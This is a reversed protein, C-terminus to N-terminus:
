HSPQVVLKRTILHCAHLPVNLFTSLALPFNRRVSFRAPRQLTVAVRHHFRPQPTPRRLPHRHQRSGPRNCERDYRQQNKLVPPDFRQNRSRHHFRNRSSPRLRRSNNLCRANRALANRPPMGRRLRSTFNHVPRRCLRSDLNRYWRFRHERRSSNGFADSERRIQTDSHITRCLLHPQPRPQNSKLLSSSLWSIRTPTLKPLTTTRRQAPFWSFSHRTGLHRIQQPSRPPSPYLSSREPAPRAM